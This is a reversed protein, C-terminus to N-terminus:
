LLIEMEMQLIVGSCLSKFSFNEGTKWIFIIFLIIIFLFIILLLNIRNMSPMIDGGGPVAPRKEPNYEESIPYYNFNDSLIHVDIILIHIKPAKLPTLLKNSGTTVYERGEGFGNENVLKVECTQNNCVVRTKEPLMSVLKMLNSVILNDM